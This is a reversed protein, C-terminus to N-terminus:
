NHAARTNQANEEVTESLPPVPVVGADRKARWFSGGTRSLAAWRYFNVHYLTRVEDTWKTHWDMVKGYFEIRRIRAEDFIKRFYEQRLLSAPSSDKITEDYTTKLVILTERNAVCLDAAVVSGAYCLRHISGAGRRCFEELLARYFRGQANGPHIATGETGKWGSSELRGYDDIAKAVDPASTVSDFGLAVDDKELRSRQRKMNNRLNKGREAWYEDFTSSITVRSTQIYDLTQVTAGDRPRPVLEPDQQTIGVALAFRPLARLLSPVLTELTDPSRHVWAGLPAQAPQFTEWIVGYKCQLLSMACAIDGRYGVALLESGSGFEKLALAVFASMLAPVGSAADNIRDWDQAFLGFDNAGHFKWSINAVHPSSGSAAAVM